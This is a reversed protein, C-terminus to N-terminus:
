YFNKLRVATLGAHTRHANMPPGSFVTISLIRASCEEISPNKVIPYSAYHSLYEGIDVPKCVIYPIDCDAIILIELIQFLKVDFSTLALFYGRKLSNGRYICKSYVTYPKTQTFSNILDTHETSGFRYKQELIISNAIPQTLLYSFQLQYKRSISFCINVRSMTSRAYMKFQRHKSEFRFSWFNRPAGSMKIVSRYHIMLHHKPKLTDHFLQIYDRHHYFILMQLRDLMSESINFSLLIDVIEILKLLFIWVEEDAPVLDGVFLPLLHLFCMMERASMKFKSKALHSDTIERCTNGIELEGYNFTQKRMNLTKLTFYKKTKICYNLIHALDYHCIGEFLDHMVDVCFNTTAHFSDIVNFVCQEKVGTLRFNDIAIDVEYNEFNRLNTLNEQYCKHTIEKADKCFRCFFTAGFASFGLVTNMGLNDGLVLGLIFHVIRSGSSTEIEIGDHELKRIEEVLYRLSNFNGHAKYDAARIVSALFIDQIEFVPFSYLMTVPDAHSGLPNNIECDDIYLFFPLVLKGEDVLKKSKQKWLKSYIFESYGRNIPESEVKKLAM